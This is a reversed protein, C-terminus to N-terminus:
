GAAARSRVRAGFEAHDALNARMEAHLRAIVAQEVLLEARPLSRVALEVAAEVDTLAGAFLAYAKGGLGDALHVELLRVRAGKVGADAAGLTAAVSTTEIVGLAEGAGPRRGGTIAAVVDPHVAPLFIEDVLEGAGSGATVRGARMAEEVSAVEGGVLVLFKGPHVTGAHLTAVPARKVMADGARIGLAVSSFELLGLAPFAPLMTM